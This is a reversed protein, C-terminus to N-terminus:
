YFCKCKNIFEVKLNGRPFIHKSLNMTKNFSWCVTHDQIYKNCDYFATIHIVFNTYVQNFIKFEFKAYLSKKWTDESGQREEHSGIHPFSNSLTSRITHRNKKRFNWQEKCSLNYFWIHADNLYCILRYSAFM